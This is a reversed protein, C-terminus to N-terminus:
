LMVVVFGQEMFDAALTDMLQTAYDWGISYAEVSELTYWVQNNVIERYLGAPFDVKERGRFLPVRMYLDLMDGDGRTITSAVAQIKNGRRDDSNKIDTTQQIDVNALTSLVRQYAEDRRFMAGYRQLHRHMEIATKKASPVNLGIEALVPHPQLKGTIVDGYPSDMMTRLVVTYDVTNIEVVHYSPRIDDKYQVAFAYVSEPSIVQSLYPRRPPKPEEAQGNLLTYVGPQGAYLKIEM